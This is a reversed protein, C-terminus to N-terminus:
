FNLANKRSLFVAVYIGLFLSSSCSILTDPTRKSQHHSKDKQGGNVYFM